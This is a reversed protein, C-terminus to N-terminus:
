QAHAKIFELTHKIIERTRPNNNLVDFGHEGEAHNSFDITARKSLAEQIFRDVAVNLEPEDRGARAIFTPAFAKSTRSLIHLPSFEKIAEDTIIPRQKRLAELDLIAYYFVLCRIFPPNENIFRSLFLSGASLAWVCIRDPDLGFRESNNRLYTIADNVDSQAETLSNKDWGYFRHNFTIGVFGSAAALQGFSVYAGWEKPKTRLNPPLAGGHIFLVAPRRVRRSRNELSYVDMKLEDAAVRKYTLDKQAAIKEMGPLAYVIRPAAVEKIWPPDELKSSQQASGTSSFTALMVLVLIIPTLIWTFRNWNM